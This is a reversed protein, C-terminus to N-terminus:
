NGFIAVHVSDPDVLVGTTATRNTVRVADVTKTGDQQVLSSWATDSATGIVAYNADEMAVTFNITWDGTGTDIINTVNYGSLITGDPQFNVWAKCASLHFQQVAPAVAKGVETGVAVEAFSAMKVLGYLTTSAALTAWAAGNWFKYTGSTIDRIMVGTPITFEAAIPLDATAYYNGNCVRWKSNGDDWTYLNGYDLTICLEGDIYPGTLLIVADVDAATLGVGLVARGATRSAAALLLESWATTAVGSMSSLNTLTLGTPGWGIAQGASPNPLVPDIDTDATPGLRVSRTVYDNVEQVMLTLEDFMAEEADASFRRNPRLDTEQKQPTSRYLVLSEGTAIDAADGAVVDDGVITYESGNTWITEVLGADIHAVVVLDEDDNYPFTIPFNTTVGNGSYIKRPTITSTVTM